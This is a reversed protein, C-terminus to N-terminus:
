AGTDEVFLKEFQPNYNWLSGPQGAVSLKFVKLYHSTRYFGGGDSLGGSGPVFEIFGLRSLDSMAKQYLPEDMDHLDRPPTAMNVMGSDLLTKLVRLHFSSLAKLDELVQNEYLDADSKSNKNVAKGVLYDAVMQRKEQNASREAVEVGLLFTELFEDSSLYSKDLKDESLNSVTDKISNLLDVVRQERIGAYRGTLYIDLASFVSGFAPILGSIAQLTARLATSEAYGELVEEKSKM